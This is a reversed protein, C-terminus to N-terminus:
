FRVGRFASGYSSQTPAGPMFSATGTNSAPLTSPSSSTSGGGGGTNTFGYRQMFYGGTANVGTMALDGWANSRMTSAMARAGSELNVGEKRAIEARKGYDEAQVQFGWAERAANTRIQLADLEGLYAADAQVDVASGFGVDVNQAALGARQRGITLKVGERFREEAERGREIADAAQLRAISANWDILAAQSEMSQRQLSGAAEAAKAADREKKLKYAASAATVGIAILTATAVM